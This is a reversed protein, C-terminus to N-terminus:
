DQNDIDTTLSGLKPIAVLTTDSTSPVLKGNIPDLEVKKELEDTKTGLKNGTTGLEDRPELKDSAIELKGNDVSRHRPSTPNLEDDEPELEDRM